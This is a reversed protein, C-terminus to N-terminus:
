SRVRREYPDTLSNNHVDAGKINASLLVPAKGFRDIYFKYIEAHLMQAIVNCVTTNTQGFPVGNIDLAYDVAESNMDLWLDAYDLLSGGCADYTKKNVVAVVKQGKAKARRAIELPLKETGKESVICYMDRDDLQYLEEFKDAISVDEFALGTKFEDDKNVLHRIILDQMRLSHFYVIGGARYNLENVFEVGHKVGFLQVVGGDVMCQGMMEAVETLKSSQVDYASTINQKLVDFYAKKIDM